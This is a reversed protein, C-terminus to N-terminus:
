AAHKYNTDKTALLRRLRQESSLTIIEYGARHIWYPLANYFKNAEKWEFTLANDLADFRLEYEKDKHEYYSIYLEPNAYRQKVACRNGYLFQFVPNNETEEDRYAFLYNTGPIVVLGGLEPLTFFDEPADGSAKYFDDHNWGTPTLGFDCTHRVVENYDHGKYIKYPVFQIGLYTFEGNINNM